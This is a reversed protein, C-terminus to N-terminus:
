KSLYFDITKALGSEFSEKPKFDLATQIKEMNIAYRWDHGPRDTVFEILRDHPAQKPFRVDMLGCITKVVSLNSREQNGGINYTHGIKGSRLVTDIGRCHDQVYLWDRIQSGDGYIPIPTQQRCADIITPIFKESHQLPGYNNSCNTTTTPLQYTHQYSRVLHDAGAKSASYPSNPAYATTETFPPDTKSLTGFVEDTSIHHFRCANAPYQKETLWIARAAELLTFTGMVNTTVFRDPTAISRDVHSEAAFHVITDIDHERMIQGVYQADNIDGHYFYLRKPDSVQDLHHRNGAYTLKDLVILQVSQDASLLYHVFNAGIFGAGGTILIQKPRFTQKM